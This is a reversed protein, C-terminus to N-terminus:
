WVSSRGSVLIEAPKLRKVMDACDALVLLFGVAEQGHAWGILANRFHDAQELSLRFIAGVLGAAAGAVLSLLALGLLSGEDHDEGNTM